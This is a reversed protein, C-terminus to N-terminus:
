PILTKTLRIEVKKAKENGLQSSALLAQKGLLDDILGKL